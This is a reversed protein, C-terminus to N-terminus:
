GTDQVPCQFSAGQYNGLDLLYSSWCPFIIEVMVKM